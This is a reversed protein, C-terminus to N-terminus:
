DSAHKERLQTLADYEYKDALDRLAGASPADQEMVKGILEDLQGKEGSLVARRLQDMLEVPLRTRIKGNLVSALAAVSETEGSREDGVYLYGVGLRVRIKELLDDERCPKSVFDDVSSHIVQNRDEYLASASVAIIIPAEGAQSARIRRTAELGDMVPMRIDMLIMQPRWEEWVEIAM